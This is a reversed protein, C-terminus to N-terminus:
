GRDWERQACHTVSDACESSFYFRFWGFRKSENLACVYVVIACLLCYSCSVYARECDVDNSAQVSCRTPLTISFGGCTTCKIFSHIFSRFTCCKQNYFEFSRDTSCRATTLIRSWMRYPEPIYKAMQEPILHSFGYKSKTKSHGMFSISTDEPWHEATGNVFTRFQMYWRIAIQLVCVFLNNRSFEAYINMQDFHISLNFVIKHQVRPSKAWLM